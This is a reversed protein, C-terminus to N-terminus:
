WKLALFNYPPWPGSFLYKYGPFASRLERSRAFFLDTDRREILFAVRALLSKPSSHVKFKIDSGAAAFRREVERRLVAFDALGALSSGYDHVRGSLYGHGPTDGLREQLAACRADGGSPLLVKMGMEVKGKFRAMTGAIAGKNKALFSLVEDAPLITGYAFPLVTFGRKLIRDNVDFHEMIGSPSLFDREGREAAVTVFQDFPFLYYPEGSLFALDETSADTLCYLYIM